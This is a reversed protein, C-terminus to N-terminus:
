NGDFVEYLNKLFGFEDIGTEYFRASSYYYDLDDKALRWKGKVPNAHIYEIKQKAIKRSLIEIALSDRQWIEYIKNCKNVCYSNQLGQVKIQKLFKHATFKLFSAFATEKGNLMHQQWIFHIHTPMIVFSYVTVQGKDSLYKLSDVIEQKNEERTLLYQWKHISATWFYIREQAAFSKRKYTEMFSGVKGQMRKEQIELLKIHSKEPKTRSVRVM